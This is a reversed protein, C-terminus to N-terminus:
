KRFKKRASVSLRKRWVNNIVLTRVEGVYYKRLGKEPVNDAYAVKVVAKGPIM